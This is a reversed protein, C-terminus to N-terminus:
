GHKEQRAKIEETRPDLPSLTYPKDNFEHYGDVFARSISMVAEALWIGHNFTTQQWAQLEDWTIPSISMGNNSVLGCGQAIQLLASANDDSPKLNVIFHKEGLLKAYSEREYKGGRDPTAALYGM